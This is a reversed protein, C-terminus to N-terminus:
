LISVRLQKVASIKESVTEKDVSDNQKLTLDVDTLIKFLNQLASVKGSQCFTHIKKLERHVLLHEVPLVHGDSVAAASKSNVYSSLFSPPM